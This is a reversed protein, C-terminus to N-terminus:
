SIQQCFPVVNSVTDWMNISHPSNKTRWSLMQCVIANWGGEWVCKHPYMKGQGLHTNTGPKLKIARFSTFNHELFLIHDKDGTVKFNLTVVGFCFRNRLPRCLLQISPKLNIAAFRRWNDQAFQTKPCVYLPVSPCVTLSRWLMICGIELDIGRESNVCLKM